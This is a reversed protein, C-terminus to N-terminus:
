RTVTLTGTMGLGSHYTCVFTYTGPARFRYRFTDGQGMNGSDVGLSSITFTHAALDKNTVLVSDGSHLTLASPSFRDGTVEDVGFTAGSRTPSPTPRPAPKSTAAPVVSAV